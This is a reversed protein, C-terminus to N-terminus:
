SNDPYSEENLIKIIAEASYKKSEKINFIIENRIKVIKDQFENKQLILMQIENPISNLYAPNIIKGIKERIRIEIPVLANKEFEPNNIKKPVDIFLIPKEFGFAFELASGSWDTIMVDSSSYSEFNPINKELIFNNNQSFKKFIKEIKKKSHKQSM